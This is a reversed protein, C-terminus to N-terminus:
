LTLIVQTGENLVSEICITGDLHETATKVISLGLGNGNIKKSRSEDARFFPEFIRALNYQDIGIGTDCITIKVQGQQKKLTICISGNQKNYKIANSILNTLISKVLFSNAHLKIVELQTTITLNMQRIAFDQFHLCEKIMLELQIEQNEINSKDTLALLQGVIEILENTSQTVIQINEKYDDITPADELELVQLSSKIVALPTKLEHAANQTFNKQLHFSKNLRVLMSNFSNTLTTIEDQSKPVPIQTNLRHEDIEATTKNLIKLPNLTRSVLYNTLFISLLVIFIMVIFQMMGFERQAKTTDSILTANIITQESDISDKPVLLEPPAILESHLTNKELIPRVFHRNSNLISYATLLGMTVILILAVMLTIKNKLTKM